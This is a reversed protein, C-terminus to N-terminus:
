GKQTGSFSLVLRIIVVCLSDHILFLSIGRIRKTYNAYLSSCAVSVANHRIFDLIKTGNNIIVIALFCGWRLTRAM